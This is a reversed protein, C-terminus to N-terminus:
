FVAFFSKLLVWLFILVEGIPFAIWIVMAKEDSVMSALPFSM